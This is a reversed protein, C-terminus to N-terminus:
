QVTFTNSPESKRYQELAEGVLVYFTRVRYRGPELSYTVPVLLQEGPELVRDQDGSALCAFYPDEPVRWRGDDYREFSWFLFPFGYDCGMLLAPREGVNRVTIQLTISGATSDASYAGADTAVVIHPSEPAVVCGTLTVALAVNLIAPCRATM